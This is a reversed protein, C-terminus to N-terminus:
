KAVSKETDRWSKFGAYDIGNLFVVREGYYTMYSQGGMEERDWRLYRVADGCGQFAAVPFDRAGSPDDLVPLMIVSPLANLDPAGSM